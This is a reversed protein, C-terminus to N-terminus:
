TTDAARERLAVAAARVGRAFETPGASDFADAEAEFTSAADTLAATIHRAVHRVVIAELMAASVGSM